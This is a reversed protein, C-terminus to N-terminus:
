NEKINKSGYDGVYAKYWCGSCVYYKNLEIDKYKKPKPFSQGNFRYKNGCDICIKYEIKNSSLIFECEIIVEFEKNCNECEHDFNDSSELEIKNQYECYPCKIKYM